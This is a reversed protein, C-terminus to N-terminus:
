KYNNELDQNTLCHSPLRHHSTGNERTVIGNIHIPESLPNVLIKIRHSIEVKETKKKLFGSIKEIITRM